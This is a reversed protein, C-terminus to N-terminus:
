YGRITTTTTTTTTITPTPGLDTLNAVFWVGGVGQGQTDGPVQDKVYYYLPWGKFTTQKSGDARTISGFDLSNLLSPPVVINPTYFIPWNALTAGVINSHGVSDKTTWYLTLGKGDVLYAGLGTKSNIDVTFSVNSTTVMATTSTSANASKCAGTILLISTMIAFTILQFNRGNTIMKVM